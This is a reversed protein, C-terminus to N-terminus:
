KSGGWPLAALGGPITDFSQAVEEAVTRRSPLMAYPALAQNLPLIGEEVAVLTAKILAGFCRWRRNVEKNYHDAASSATRAGRGHHTFRTEDPRPLPLSFKFGRQEIEFYIVCQGTEQANVIRDCGIRALIGSIEGQTRSAEVSTGQAYNLAM